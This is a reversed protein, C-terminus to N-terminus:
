GIREGDGPSLLDLYDRVGCSGVAAGLRHRQVAASMKEDALSSLLWLRHIPDFRGTPIAECGFSVGLQWCIRRRTSLPLIPLCCSSAVLVSGIAALGALATRTGGFGGSETTSSDAEESM